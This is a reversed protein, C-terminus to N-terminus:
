GAVLKLLQVCEFIFMYVNLLQVLCNFNLLLEYSSVEKVHHCEANYGSSVSPSDDSSSAYGLRTLPPPAVMRTSSPPTVVWMKVSDDSSAEEQRSPPSTTRRRSSSGVKQM